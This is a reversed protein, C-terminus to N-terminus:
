FSLSPKKKGTHPMDSTDYPGDRRNYSVYPVVMTCSSIMHQPCTDNKRLKAICITHYMICNLVSDLVNFM